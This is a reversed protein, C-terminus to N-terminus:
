CARGARVAMFAGLGNAGNAQNDRHEVIPADRVLRVLVLSFFCHLEVFEYTWLWVCSFSEISEFLTEM